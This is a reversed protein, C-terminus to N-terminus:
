TSTKYLRKGAGGASDSLSEFDSEKLMLLRSMLLSDMLEPIRSRGAEAERKYVSFAEQPVDKSINEGCELMKRLQSASKPGENGVSDHDNGVRKVTFPIM